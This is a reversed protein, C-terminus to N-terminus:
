RENQQEASVAEQEVALEIDDLRLEGSILKPLLTDRLKMLMETESDLSFSKELYARVTADFQAHAKMAPVLLLTDKIAGSTLNVQVGSNARSRLEDVVQPENSYFYLYSYNLHSSTKPRLRAVRQNQLFVNDVPMLATNGLIVMNSKMDTMSMLLDGKLAFYKAIKKDVCEIPFYSKTGQPNFGGGRKIHGMKFVPYASADNDLLEKSKFAFGNQFDMHEGYTSVKWGKPVWGLESEEFADPFLQRVDEPLPKFGESERVAKRVEARHQLEDPIPNGADLANDMVPDFDVFWSKFLTQAMQELTQNIQRNLTIKNDLNRLTSAVGRQIDIPPLEFEFDGIKKVPVRAQNASGQAVNVIWESFQRTKLLYYLYSQDIAENPIVCCTNQNQIAGESCKPARVVKGVVSSWNPPWSGVTAILVDDSKLLHSAWKQAHERDVKTADTLDISDSTFNSVKALNVGDNSTTFFDQKVGAGNRFTAVDGLKCRVTNSGM